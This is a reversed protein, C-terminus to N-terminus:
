ISTILKFSQSAILRHARETTHLADWYVYKSANSCTSTSSPNCLFSTVEVTGSGCCGFKVVEFGSNQPHQNLALLPHYIDLLVLKADPFDKNITDLESSLQSNFMKARQNQLELCVRELRGGNRELPLCGLPAVNLIGIRRAGISYLDKLFTSAFSVLLAAYSHFEDKRALLPYTIIIDNNGSSVLFLSNAIITKAISEGVLGILKVRYDKFLELQDSLTLVGVTSATLPDYGSSGSAFCVGTPLYESRLKPDLYAPLVHKIGLAEVIFDPYIKGNSFRGTPIGGIFDRGYPPFNCKAASSLNNNNGTDLVSDGFAFVGVFPSAM